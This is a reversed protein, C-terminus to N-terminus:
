KSIKKYKEVGRSGFYAVIVTVLLTSFLTIWAEEVTIALSEVSDIVALISVFVVLWAVVLPRIMKSFTNDSNMDAEWRKTVEQAESIDLDLEKLALEKDEPTLETSKAIKSGINKLVDVGTIDGVISLINGALDPAKDKLFSGIRTESFKKKDKSM